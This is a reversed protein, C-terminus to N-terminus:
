KNEKHLVVFGGLPNHEDEYPTMGVLIRATPPVFRQVQEVAYMLSMEVMPVMPLWIRKSGPPCWGMGAIPREGKLLDMVLGRNKGGAQRDLQFANHLTVSVEAVKKPEPITVTCGGNVLKNIPGEWPRTAKHVMQIMPDVKEPEERCDVLVDYWKGKDRESM